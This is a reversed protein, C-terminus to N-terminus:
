LNGAMPIQGKLTGGDVSRYTYFYVPLKLDQVTNRSWKGDKFTSRFGHVTHGPLLGRLCELMAMNSLGNGATAGTDWGTLPRWGALSTM